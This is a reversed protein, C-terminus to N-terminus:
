FPMLIEAIFQSKGKENFALDLRLVEVYPLLIHLGAGYGSVMKRIAFNKHKKWVQGSEVFIGANLGFKLDKTMFDPLRKSGFSFYRVPIIPLRLAAGLILAHNGEFVENFHGRIREKYGIFVRDYVPLKGYSQLTYIRGALIFPKLFFYKRFDLLYQTYDIKPLFLGMKFIGLKLYWGKSPYAYIDRYDFTNYLRIGYNVDTKNGTEMYHVNKDDVTIQDRILMLETWFDRTWYKGLHIVGYIHHEPFDYLYNNLRFTRFYLGTFLHLDRGIWPNFYAFKLGPRNGFHTSAQLKENWGRFNLHAFGFGYTIKKWDRDEVDFVPYPFFYWRETVSIIISVSDGTSFPLFEIRNFLWLNELRQMSRQLLSDQLTQGPKILLERLLVEKETHKNGVVIIDKIRKGNFYSWDVPNRAKAPSLFATVVILVFFRRM